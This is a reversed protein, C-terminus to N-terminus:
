GLIQQLVEVLKPGDISIRMTDGDESKSLEIVKTTIKNPQSSKDDAKNVTGDDAEKEAQVLYENIQDVNSNIFDESDEKARELLAPDLNPDQRGQIPCKSLDFLLKMLRAKAGENNTFFAFPKFTRFRWRDYKSIHAITLVTEHTDIRLCDINYYVDDSVTDVKLQLKHEPYNLKTPVTISNIEQIFKALQMFLCEKDNETTIKVIGNTLVSNSSIEPM